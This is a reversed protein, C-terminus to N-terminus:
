IYRSSRNEMRHHIRNFLRGYGYVALVTLVSYYAGKYRTATELIMFLIVSGIMYISLIKMILPAKQDFSLLLMSGIAGVMVFFHYVEIIVSYTQKIDGSQFRTYETQWETVVKPIYSEDFWVNLKRKFHPVIGELGMDKYRDMGLKYFFKQVDSPDNMEEQVQDLLSADKENWKGETEENAGIYLNWGFSYAPKKYGSYHSTVSGTLWVVVTFTVFLILSQFAKRKISETSYLFLILVFAIVLIVGTPRFFNAVACVIGSIATYLYHKKLNHGAALFFVATMILSSYVPEGGSLLTFGMVSPNFAIALGGIIGVMPNTCKELIYIACAVELIGFGFNIFRPLWTAEGFIKYFFSMFIPYNLAHPFLGYYFKNDLIGINIKSANSLYIGFDGQPKINLFYTTIFRIALAMVVTFAIRGVISAKLLQKQYLYLLLIGSLCFLLYIFILTFSTSFVSTINLILLVCLFCVCLLEGYYSFKRLFGNFKSFM